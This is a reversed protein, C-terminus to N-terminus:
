FGGDEAARIETADTEGQRVLGTAVAKALSLGKLEGVIGAYQAGEQTPRTGMLQRTLIDQYARLGAEFDDWGPHGMLDSVREGAAAREQPTEAVAIPIAHIEQVPNM